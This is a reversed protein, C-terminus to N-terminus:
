YTTEPPDDDLEDEPTNSDDSEEDTEGIVSTSYVEIDESAPNLYCSSRSARLARSRQSRYYTRIRSSFVERILGRETAHALMTAAIGPLHDIYDTVAAEVIGTLAQQIGEGIASDVISFDAHTSSQPSSQETNINDDDVQGNKMAVHQEIEKRTMGSEFLMRVWVIRELEEEVYERQSTPLGAIKVAETVTNHSINLTEALM